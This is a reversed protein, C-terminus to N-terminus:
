KPLMRQWDLAYTNAPSDRVMTGGNGYLPMDVNNTRHGALSWPGIAPPIMNQGFAQPFTQRINGSGQYGHGAAIPPMAGVPMQPQNMQPGQFGPSQSGPNQQQGMMMAQLQQQFRPDGSFAGALANGSNPMPPMQPPAISQQPAGQQMLAPLAGFMSANLLGM